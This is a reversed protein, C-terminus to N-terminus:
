MRRLRLYRALDPLAVVAVGVGAAVALALAGLAAYGLVKL